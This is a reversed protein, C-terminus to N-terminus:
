NNPTGNEKWNKILEIEQSTLKNANLPMFGLENEEKEISEIVKGNLVAEKIDEYTLLHLLHDIQHCGVCNQEFIPKVCDSFTPENTECPSLEHYTCSAFVFLGFLFFTRIM